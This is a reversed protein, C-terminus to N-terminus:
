KLIIKEIFGCYKTSQHLPNITTILLSGSKTIKKPMLLNGTSIKKKPSFSFSVFRDQINDLLITHTQKFNLSKLTLQNKLIIILIEGLNLRIDENLVRTSYRNEKKILLNKEYTFFYGKKSRIYTDLISLNEIQIDLQIEPLYEKYMWKIKSLNLGPPYYVLSLNEDIHNDDFNIFSLNIDFYTKFFIRNETIQNEYHSIIKTM